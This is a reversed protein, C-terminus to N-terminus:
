ILGVRTSFDRFQPLPVGKTFPDALNEKSACHTIVLKKENVLQRTFHFAIDIHKSRKHFGPNEALLRAGESDIVIIPVRNAINIGLSSVIHSINNWLYIAEKAADRLAMYEAETSSLAVTKQKGSYWSILNERRFFFIYGSTSVRGAIDDAWSADSYGVLSLHELRNQRTLKISRKPFRKIYGWVRKLAKWHTKDPNQGFQSCKNVPTAIDLRTKMALYLLAGLQQQFAQIESATAQGESKVLKVGTDMPTDYYPINETPYFIDLCKQTYRDLNLSISEGPKIDLDIGLFTTPFGIEKLKIEKSKAAKNMTERIHEKNPGVVIIDDVHCVLVLKKTSHIFVGEDYLSVKFGESELASRLYKYWLRPSQKLGYIAKNLRCVKDGVSFGIPQKTYILTDIDAHVFANKV